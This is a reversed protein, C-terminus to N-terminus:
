TVELRKDEKAKALCTTYGYYEKCLYRATEVSITVNFLEEVIEQNKQFEPFYNKQHLLDLKRKLTDANISDFMKPRGVTKLIGM